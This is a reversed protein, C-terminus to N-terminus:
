SRGRRTATDSRFHTGPSSVSRIAADVGWEDMPELHAEAQRSPWGPTGDPGRFRESGLTTM